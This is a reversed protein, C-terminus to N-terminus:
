DTEDILFRADPIEMGCVPCFVDVAGDVLTFKADGDVLPDWDCFWCKGVSITKINEGNKM